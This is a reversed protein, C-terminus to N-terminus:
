LVLRSEFSLRSSESFVTALVACDFCTVLSQLTLESLVSDELLIGQSGTICQFDALRLPACHPKGYTYAPGASRDDPQYAWRYSGRESWSLTRVISNGNPKMSFLTDHTM